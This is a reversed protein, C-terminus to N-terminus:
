GQGGDTALPLGSRATDLQSPKREGERAWRAETDNGPEPLISGRRINIERLSRIALDYCRAGNIDPDYATM